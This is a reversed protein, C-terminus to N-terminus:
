KEPFQDVIHEIARAILRVGKLSIHYLMKALM